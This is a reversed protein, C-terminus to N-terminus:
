PSGLEFTLKQPAVIGGVNQRVFGGIIDADKSFLHPGAM